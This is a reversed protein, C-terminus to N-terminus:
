YWNGLRITGKEEDYYCTQLTHPRSYYPDDEIELEVVVEKKLIEGKTEKAAFRILNLLDGYTTTM